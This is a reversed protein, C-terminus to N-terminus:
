DNKVSKLQEEANKMMRDLVNMTQEIDKEDIGTFIRDLFQNGIDEKKQFYRGCEKTLEVYRSRQDKMSSHIAVMGKKELVSITKAVNQRSTGMVDAIDNFNPFEKEMNRIMNLLFWQKLTIEETLQDGLMQLRNALLFIFGFIYQQNEKDSM